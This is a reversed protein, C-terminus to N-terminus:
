LNQFNCLFIDTELKKDFSSVKSKRKHKFIRNLFEKDKTVNNAIVEEKTLWLIKLKEPSSLKPKKSLPYIFNLFITQEKKNESIYNFISFLEPEKKLSYNLEEKLERQLTRLISEGMEMKGGPFKLAGNKHKLLLIRDKHKFIIVVAVIPHKQM